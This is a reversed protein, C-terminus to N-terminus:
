LSREGGFGLLIFLPHHSFTGQSSAKVIEHLFYSPVEVNNKVSALSWAKARTCQHTESHPSGWPSVHWPFPSHTSLQCLGRSSLQLEGAALLWPPQHYAGKDQLSDPCRPWTGLHWGKCQKLWTSELTQPCRKPTELLNRKRPFSLLPLRTSHLTIGALAAPSLDCWIAISGGKVTWRANRQSKALVEALGFSRVQFAECIKM